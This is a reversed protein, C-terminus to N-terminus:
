SVISINDKLEKKESSQWNQVVVENMIQLV